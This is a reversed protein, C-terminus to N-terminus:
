QGKVPIAADNPRPDKDGSSPLAFLHAHPCSEMKCGYKAACEEITQDLAVYQKCVACHQLPSHFM